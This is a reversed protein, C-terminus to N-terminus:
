VMRWTTGKPGDMLEVGLAVLEGRVQDARAFDKADRAAKRAEIKAEIDAETLGKAKVRRARVRELFVTPDQQGVGLETGLAALAKEAAAVAAKSVTGKKRRTTEVLENVQKLMESAHALAVPMNLDDDLASALDKAFSTLAAPVEGADVIRAPDISALRERTTYVYEVRREADDFLPFRSPKSAEDLEFDFHLPSRYHVTLMAYRLAEPEHRGFIERATFFNGLSKSMKTKDVEVFGNHMWHKALPKGSAAESQAIENEHHPFVLDLGGGHLDLTEGLHTKGMASCEIHWGPRGYGWPSAWGWESEAAGKWLAFDAPARKKKAEEDGVRGSGGELLADVTRHSLKGYGAFSDVSYYVDGAVAYASGKEILTAIIELIQPIHGSVTPEIDPPLNGLARMDEWFAETFRRSLTTPDEGNEKSRHLIKDDVDTINRVYTVKLGSARLHRVLVDYIVYCRAHGVHAFDYVTPGCVYVRAHNPEETVFPAKRQTLTDYLSLSM